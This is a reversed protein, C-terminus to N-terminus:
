EQGNTSALDARASGIKEQLTIIDQEMQAIHAAVGDRREQEMRIAADAPSESPIATFFGDGEGTPEVTMADFGMRSGLEAWAANAREQPSSPTGIHLMIMPVSKCADKIKDLDNQTMEFRRRPYNM